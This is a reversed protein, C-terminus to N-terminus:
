FLNFGSSLLIFTCMTVLYCVLGNDKYVPRNNTSTIIGYYDKGPVYWMIFLQFLAFYGICTRSLETGFFHELWHTYGPTLAYVNPEYANSEYTITGYAYVNPEYTITGYENVNIFWLWYVLFPTSSMILLPVIYQRFLIDRNLTDVM